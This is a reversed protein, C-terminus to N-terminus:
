GSIDGQVRIGRTIEWIVGRVRKTGKSEWTNKKGKKGRMNGKYKWIDGTSENGRQLLMYGISGCIGKIGLIRRYEWIDGHERVYAVQVEMSGGPRQAGM